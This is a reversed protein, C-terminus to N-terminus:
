PRGVASAKSIRLVATRNRARNAPSDNPFPPNRAGASQLQFVEAPLTTTARLHEVVAFARSLGLAANDRFASDGRPTLDDSHGIASIAIEGAQPELARGLATLLQRAEVRLSDGESFLGEEFTAVVAPGDRRVSVGPLGFEFEPPAAPEAIRRQARGMEEM